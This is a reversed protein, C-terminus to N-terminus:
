RRFRGVKVLRNPLKPLKGSTKQIAGAECVEMCKGCGDCDFDDIMHIFGAKGEICDKPCVDMCEMCGECTKPDIYVTEASFCVGAPCTKKRIHAEYESKFKEVATLAIKSSVQGMTCPTSITMAEGIEKTLELFEAKGRGAKIEKQMHALQILGERCFVCKGCSQRGSATLSKETEMVICDKKTLVRIVGNTIEATELTLEMAERPTYYQYGLQVAKADEFSVCETLKTDCAKKQVAGGNVSVYIGPEYCDSFIDAINRATILHLLACGQNARVDVSGTRLAVGYRKAAEKLGEEEALDGAYEPVYLVKNETGLAYAAISIGEMVKEPEARLVKLLVGETDANNQACVVGTEKGEEKSEEAAMILRDSLKQRCLGYEELGMAAIKELVEERNMKEAQELAGM